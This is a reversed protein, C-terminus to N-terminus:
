ILLTYWKTAYIELVNWDVTDYDIRMWQYGSWPDGICGAVDPHGQAIVV